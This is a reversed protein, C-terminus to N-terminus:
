VLMLNNYMRSLCQTYHCNTVRAHFLFHLIQRVIHYLVNFEVTYSNIKGHFSSIFLGFDGVKFLVIWCLTLVYSKDNQNMETHEAPGGLSGPHVAAGCGGEFGQTRLGTGVSM